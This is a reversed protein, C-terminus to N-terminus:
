KAVTFPLSFTGTKPSGIDRLRFEVVYAGPQIGGVSLSINLMLERIRASNTLEIRQFGEKGGVITGDARKIMVDIDFGFRFGGEPRATWLYGYPEAYVKLEQGPKFPVASRAVATGYMSPAAEVFMATRVGIPAQEWTAVVAAEAKEIAELGAGYARGPPVLLAIAVCVAAAASPWRTRVMGAEKMGPPVIVAVLGTRLGTADPDGGKSLRVAGGRHFTRVFGKRVPV